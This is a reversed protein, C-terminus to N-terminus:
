WKTEVTLIKLKYGEIRGVCIVTFQKYKSSIKVINKGIKRISGGFITAEIM